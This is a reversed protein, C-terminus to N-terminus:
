GFFGTRYGHQQLLQPFTALEPNLASFNDTIGHQHMYLGTLMTARSPSCLSPTVFANRYNVGRNIMRDLNPTHGRLWPHGMAGFMDYRHDDALVFIINRPPRQAQGAPAALATASKLFDRRRM